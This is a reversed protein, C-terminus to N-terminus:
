KGRKRTLIFSVACLAALVAFINSDPIANRPALPNESTIVSFYVSKECGIPSYNLDLSYNGEANSDMQVFFSNWSSNCLVPPVPNIISGSVLNGASNRFTISSINNSLTCLANLDVLVTNNDRVTISNILVSLGYDSCVHVVPKKADCSNLVLSNKDGDGAMGECCYNADEYFPLSYLGGLAERFDGKDPTVGEVVKFIRAFYTLKQLNCDVDPDLSGSVSCDWTGLGTKVMSVNPATPPTDVVTIVNSEKWGADTYVSGSVNRGSKQDVIQSFFKYQSNIDMCKLGFSVFDTRAPSPLVHEVYQLRSSSGIILNNEDWGIARNADNFFLRYRYGVVCNNPSNAFVDLRFQTLAPAFVNNADASSGASSIIAFSVNNDKCIKCGLTCEPKYFLGSITSGSQWWWNKACEFGGSYQARADFTVNGDCSYDKNYDAIGCREVQPLKSCASWTGCGCSKVAGACEGIQVCGTQV